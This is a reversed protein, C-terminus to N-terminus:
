NKYHKAVQKHLTFIARKVENYSGQEEMLEILPQWLDKSLEASEALRTLEAAENAFHPKTPSYTLLMRHTRVALEALDGAPIGHKTEIAQWLDPGTSEIMSSQITSVTDQEEEVEPMAPLEVSLKKSAGQASKWAPGYSKQPVGKARLALALSWRSAARWVEAQDVPVKPEVLISVDKKEEPQVEPLESLEEPTASETPSTAVEPPTAEDTSTEQKETEDNKITEVPKTEEPPSVPLPPAPKTKTPEVPAPKEGFLLDIEEKVDIETKVKPPSPEAIEESPNEMPPAQEEVTVEEAESEEAEFFAFPDDEDASEEGNTETDAIESVGSEGSQMEEEASTEVAPSPEEVLEKPEEKSPEEAASSEADIVDAGLRGADATPNDERELEELPEFSTEPAPEIPEPKTPEPEVTERDEAEPEPTEPEAVEPETAELEIPEAEVPQPQVRPQEIPQSEVPAREPPSEPPLTTSQEPPAVPRSVGSPEPRPEDEAKAVVQTQVKRPSPEYKIEQWCGPLTVLFLWSFALFVRWRTSIQPSDKM